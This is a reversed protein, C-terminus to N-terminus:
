DRLILSILLMTHSSSQQLTRSLLHLKSVKQRDETRVAVHTKILHVYQLDIVSFKLIIWCVRSHIAEKERWREGEGEQEKKRRRAFSIEIM